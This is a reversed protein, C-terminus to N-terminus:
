MLFDVDFLYNFQWCERILPDGLINSLGVTDTNASAPLDRIRMLRIPSPVFTTLTDEDWAAPPIERKRHNFPVPTRRSVPPPSIARHLSVTNTATVSLADSETKSGEATDLKRRKAHRERDSGTM